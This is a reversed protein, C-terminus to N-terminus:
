VGGGGEGISEYQAHQNGNLVTGFSVSKGGVKGGEKTYRQSFFRGLSPQLSPVEWEAEDM